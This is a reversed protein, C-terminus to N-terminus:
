YMYADEHILSLLHQMETLPARKSTKYTSRAMYVHMVSMLNELDRYKLAVVIYRLAM